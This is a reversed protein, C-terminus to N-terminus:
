LLSPDPEFAPIHLIETKFLNARHMRDIKARVTEDECVGERIYRDLTAYTFGIKAEDPMSGPLGDDPTKGVWKEPLGMARGIALVERVCLRSLPSFSGAADGYLTAYGIYDESLNCTNAVFGGVSQAVAYLVTMRIRPPINLISQKSFGETNPLSNGLIRLAAEAEGINLCLYRIGLYACIEDADNIPQTGSPMAVGVVRDPGLAQACLAAAVTSDKGGSMGLVACSSPGFSAFWDAIWRICDDKLRVANM